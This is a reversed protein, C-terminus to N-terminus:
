EPAKLAAVMDIKKNKRAVLIGVILSVGATLLISVLYTLPGLISVFKGKEVRMDVKDLARLVHDGSRYIKSVGQLEILAM